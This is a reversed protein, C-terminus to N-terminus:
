IRGQAGLGSGCHPVGAGRERDGLAEAEIVLTMLPFVSGRDMGEAKDCMMSRSVVWANPVCQM